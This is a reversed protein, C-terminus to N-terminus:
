CNGSQSGFPNQCTCQKSFFTSKRTKEIFFAPFYKKASFVTTGLSETQSLFFDFRSNSTNNIKVNEFFFCGFWEKAIQTDTYLTM